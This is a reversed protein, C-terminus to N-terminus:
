PLTGKVLRIDDIWVTGKGTIVLNLKVNDPNEGEKLLFPTALNTWNTTGTLPTMLGKSFFEGKGPFHCWMELYVQGVLNETRVKAQYILRANEIDIDGTEFLHITTAETADIRLSGNGDSSIVKDISIGSQTILGQLDDLAFAELEAVAAAEITAKKLAEVQRVIQAQKMEADRLLREKKITSIWSLSILFAVLTVTTLITIVTAKGYSDPWGIVGLVFAPIEILVFLLFCVSFIVDGEGGGTIAFCISFIMISLLIGGLMLYFAIKGQRRKSDPIEGRLASSNAGKAPSKKITELLENYEEESIKGDNRLELLEEESSINSINEM